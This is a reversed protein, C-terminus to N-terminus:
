KSKPSKKQFMRRISAESPRDKKPLNQEPCGGNTILEMAASVGIREKRMVGALRENQRRIMEGVERATKSKM